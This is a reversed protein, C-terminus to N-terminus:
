AHSPQRLLGFVRRRAARAQKASRARRPVEHHRGAAQALEALHAQHMAAYIHPSM